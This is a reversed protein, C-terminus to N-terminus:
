RVHTALFGLVEEEFKGQDTDWLQCHGAGQCFWSRKVCPARALEESHSHSVIQDATGHMVLTPLTVRAIAEKASPPGSLHKLKSMVKGLCLLETVVRVPYLLAFFVASKRCILTRFGVNELVFAALQPISLFPNEAVICTVRGHVKEDSASAVISAVAGTSTGVLAIQLTPHAAAAWRVAGRVDESEVLGLSTGGAGCYDSTGHAHFDFLMCTYGAELLFPCHRLWARRDRAAGHTMILLCKRDKGTPKLVWGRLTCGDLSKFEVDEYVLGMSGPGTVTEPPWYPCMKNPDQSLGEEPGTNVLFSPFLLNQTMLEALKDLMVFGLIAGGLLGSRFGVALAVVIASIHVVSSGSSKSAKLKLGGKPKPPAVTKRSM